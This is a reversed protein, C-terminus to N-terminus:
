LASSASYSLSLPASAESTSSGQAACPPAGLTRTATPNLCAVHAHAQANFCKRPRASPRACRWARARAYARVRVFARVRVCVRDQESVCGRVCASVCARVCASVCSRLRARACARVHGRVSAALLASVRM